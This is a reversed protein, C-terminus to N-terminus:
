SINADGCIEWLLIWKGQLGRFFCEYCSPRLYIDLVFGRMFPNTHQNKRYIRGDKFDTRLSFDLWGETKDRFSIRDLEKGASM